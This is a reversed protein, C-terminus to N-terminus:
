PEFIGYGKMSRHMYRSGRELVDNTKGGISLEPWREGLFGEMVGKDAEWM